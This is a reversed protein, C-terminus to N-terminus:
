TERDQVQIASIHECVRRDLRRGISVPAYLQHLRVGQCESEQRRKANKQNLNNGEANASGLELFKADTM